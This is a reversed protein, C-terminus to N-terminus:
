DCLKEKFLEHILAKHNKSFNQYQMSSIVNIKKIHQNYEITIIHRYRNDEMKSTMHIGGFIINSFFTRSTDLNDM